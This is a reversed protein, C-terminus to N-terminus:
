QGEDITSLSNTPASTTRLSSTFQKLETTSGHYILFDEIMGSEGALVYFKIGCKEPKNKLYPKISLRGKFPVIQEDICFNFELPLENCIRRLADYICAATWLM